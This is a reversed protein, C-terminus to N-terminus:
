TACPPWSSARRHPLGRRRRRRRRLHRRRAADGGARGGAAEVAGRAGRHPQRRVRGHDRGRDAAQRGARPPRRPHARRAFRGAGAGPQAPPPSGAGAADDRAGCFGQIRWRSLQLRNSSCQEGNYSLQHCASLGADKRLSRDRGVAHTAQVRWRMQTEGAQQQGAGGAAQAALQARAQLGVAVVSRRDSRDVMPAAASGALFHLEGFQLVAGRHM